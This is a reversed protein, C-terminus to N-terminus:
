DKFELVYVLADERPSSYYNKRVGCPVFGLSSYLAIASANSARVELYVSRAGDKKLLELLCLLMKRGIGRRRAEPVVAVDLIDASDLALSAAAFGISGGNACVVYNQEAKLTCEVAEESWPHSFCLACARAVMRAREPTYGERRIEIDLPDTLATTM